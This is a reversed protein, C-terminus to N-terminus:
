AKVEKRERSVFRVPGSPAPYRRQEPMTAVFWEAPQPPATMSRLNDKLAIRDLNPSQDTM